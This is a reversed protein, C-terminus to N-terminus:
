YLVQDTPLEKFHGADDDFERANTVHHARSKLMVRQARKKWHTFSSRLNDLWDMAEEDHRTYGEYSLAAQSHLNPM